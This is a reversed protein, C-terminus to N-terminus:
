PSSAPISINLHGAYDSSIIAGLERVKAQLEAESILIEAIDDAAWGEYLLGVEFGVAADRFERSYEVGFVIPRDVPFYLALDLEREGFYFSIRSDVARRPPPPTTSRLRGMYGELEEMEEPTLPAPEQPTTPDQCLALGPCAAVILVMEFKM